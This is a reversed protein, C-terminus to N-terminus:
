IIQLVTLVLKRGFPRHIRIEVCKTSKAYDAPAKMAVLLHARAAIPRGAAPPAGDVVDLFQSSRVDIETPLSTPALPANSAGNITVTLVAMDTLIGDSMAPKWYAWKKRM